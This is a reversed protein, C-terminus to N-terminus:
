RYKVLLGQMLLCLKSMEEHNQREVFYEGIIKVTAGQMISRGAGELAVSAKSLPIVCNALASTDLTSTTTTTTSSSSASSTVQQNM